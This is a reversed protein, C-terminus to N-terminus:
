CRRDLLLRGLLLAFGLTEILRRKLIAFAGGGVRIRRRAEAAWSCGIQGHKGGTGASGFRKVVVRARPPCNISTITDAAFTAAERVVMDWAVKACGKAEFPAGGIAPQVTRRAPEMRKMVSSTSSKDDAAPEGPQQKPNCAAPGPERATM